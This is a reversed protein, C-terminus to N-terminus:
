TKILSVQSKIYDLIAIPEDGCRRYYKEEHMKKVANDVEFIIKNTIDKSKMGSFEEKASNYARRPFGKEMIDKMINNLKKPYPLSLSNNLLDYGAVVHTLMIQWRCVYCTAESLIEKLSEVMNIM